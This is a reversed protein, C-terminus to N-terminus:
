FSVQIGATYASLPPLAFGKTEPDIGKYNTITILNQGQLYVTFNRLKWNKLLTDFNYKLSVNKLRIYSADGWNADSHRYNKQYAKYIESSPSATAGPINSKDGATRWRELVSLDKNKMASGNAYSQYGFNIGPGEQKVFQVFFDLSLKKYSFSNQIGGFFDPSITGLVVMDDPDDISNNGNLDTFKPVGTQPDVGTFHFGTTVNLPQGIFYKYALATKELGPYKLLKNKTFSFNLATTWNFDNGRINITNLELEVGKNEVQAPLNAVFSSFGSQSSLAFDILQNNSRNRYFSSNLMIRDELFGLEIAAELKHNVEWSYDPNAFRSPTLGGSGGYPYSSATWSDYYQYDGIQDSGVTGFSGRLKGFSLFPLKEKVFAENGFLWAAGIAGFNGFRKNPGFRSSGDRRFTGNLIYKEDWNYTIRGFVSAYRYESYNYSKTKLAVAAHPNKLQEDSPYGEGIMYLGEKISQQITGGALVQLKGKGLQRSYDIQPEISYSNLDNNGYYGQSALYKEPNFAKKPVEQVQDMGMRNYGLNIRATLDPFIAYRVSANAMLNQTQSTYKRELYSMPNQEDGFWYYGGSANYIPYNPATNFFQTVDAALLNNRDGVYKVSANLQLKQDASNHNLNLNVSGRKYNLNGPLVTGEKRYTGSILFNTQASGGSVSLQAETLPASNGVLLDQWKNDVGPDWELLDRANEPSPAVGDNKFAERRLDLYQTTSLMDIKRTVYSAGSYVNASLETQGSKGKKTTILIVGNAGRSGYIATADADKLIDIREIDSPNISSLPSQNGNAGKFQSMSESIFPTGDVIYLPDNGGKISNLGRLRVTYGSGPYGTTGTIDLGAVRGQLAALPDSVPQKSIDKASVSSVSGTNNRKTTTGYGIVVVADLTGVDPVMVLNVMHEADAKQEVTTYGIYSFQLMVNEETVSLSFKGNGDTSVGIKQGKVKVSVGPMPMGKEDKVTGTIVKNLGGNIQKIPERFILISNNLQKYSLGTGKLLEDLISKVSRNQESLSINKLSSILENQYAFRFDTKNEIQSFAARLTGNNIEFSIQVESLGQASGTSATLSSVAFLIAMLIMANVKM